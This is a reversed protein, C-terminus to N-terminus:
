HAPTSPLTSLRVSVEGSVVRQLTSNVLGTGTSQLLLAGDMDVRVAVGSEGNSLEVARGALVDRACFGAQFPAFGTQLFQRISTMLAPVIRALAELPAIGPLLTQLFAPPVSVGEFPQPALNLGIGIVLLSNGGQDSAGSGVSEILIGGLKGMRGDEGRVWLDNPWKLGIAPHLSTAVALGVALSLGSWDQMPLPLGVSFTLSADRKSQWQRGMRGRGATQSKAVLLIAHQRTARWRRQVELNTSDVSELFELALGPWVQTALAQLSKPTHTPTPLDPM